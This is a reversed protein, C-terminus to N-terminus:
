NVPIGVKDGAPGGASAQVKKSVRSMVGTLRALIQTPVLLGALTTAIFLTVLCAYVGFSVHPVKVLNTPFCGSAVNLAARFSKNKRYNFLWYPYTFMLLQSYIKLVYRQRSESSVYPLIADCAVLGVQDLGGTHRHLTRNNEVLTDLYSNVLEGPFTVDKEVMSEAITALTGGAAIIRAALFIQVYVTGDYKGTNHKTFASNKFVIGGVFSFSRFAQLAVDPGCGVATTVRARRVIEKPNESVHFNSFSVDPSNLKKLTVALKSLTDREPLADDNGLVFLYEGHAAGLAARLNGDYGLNTPQRIYTFRVQASGEAASIYESIVRKSDDTSCDDSIVVEIEPYDQVRISDLVVLLYKSRNYHPICVSILM